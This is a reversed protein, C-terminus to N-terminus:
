APARRLDLDFLVDEGLIFRRCRPRLAQDLSPISELTISARGSGILLPAVAIHLRDLMGAQLFKSVTVGGGEVLIRRLGRERLKAVLTPLHLGDGESCPVRLEERSAGAAAAVASDRVVVLTPSSGQAFV